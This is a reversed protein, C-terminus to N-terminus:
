PAAVNADRPETISPEDTETEPCPVGPLPLVLMLALALALAWWDHAPVGACRACLREDMPTLGRM